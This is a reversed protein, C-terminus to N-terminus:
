LRVVNASSTARTVGRLDLLLRARTALLEHDVTPHATVIIALDAESAAQELPTSALPLEGLEPVHPDHYLVQAGLDRLLGMIKL